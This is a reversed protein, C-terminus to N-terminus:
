ELMRRLEARVREHDWDPHANRLELQLALERRRRSEEQDIKARAAADNRLDEFRLERAAALQRHKIARLAAMARPDPGTPEARRKSAKTRELELRVGLELRQFFLKTFVRVSPLGVHVTGIDRVIKICVKHSRLYGANYLDALAQRVRELSLGGAKALSTRAIGNRPGEGPRTLVRLTLLEMHCLLAKVVLTIAELRESRRWYNRRGVLKLQQPSLEPFRRRERYIGDAREIGQKIVWPLNARVPRELELRPERPDHGCRNGPV